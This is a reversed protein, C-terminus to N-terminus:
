SLVIGPNPPQRTRVHRTRAYPLHLTDSALTTAADGRRQPVTVPTIEGELLGAQQAADADTPNPPSPTRGPAPCTTPRPTSETGAGM